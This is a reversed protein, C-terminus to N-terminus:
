DDLLRAAPEPREGVRRGPRGRGAGGAVRGAPPLGRRIAAPTTHADKALYHRGGADLVLEDLGHLLAALGRRRGPMDLALTWGPVPFSLPGPQRRRLAQARRPLQGHGVRGPARRGHAARGGRRVARRVPVAPVGAPRLAPEVLRRLRPTSTPSISVIQAVRRRPAKRFWLENFAASRGTTSCARGSPRAAARRRAPAPRLGAPRRRRAAGAPRGHRPRGPDPRQPRPALGQGHPRDLGGLLPLLPRGRGDARAPHRPRAARDTDVSCRSTEIPLLRMTADLIVGTLGMGASRRGSCSPSAPGPRARRRHRRRAAAVAAAVHNGFSGDVHHNKGHIDSAIAGGVTVFRTGPTVPVFFGRPVISGCCTTSASAPRSPSRARGGRRDVADHGPRPAAARGRRREPGLRRVLARARARHRGSAAPGEGCRHTGRGPPRVRGGARGLVGRDEGM